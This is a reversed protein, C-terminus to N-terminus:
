AAATEAASATEKPKREFVQIGADVLVLARGSGPGLKGTISAVWQPYQEMAAQAKRWSKARLECRVVYGGCKLEIGVKDGRPIPQPAENFKVTVECRVEIM